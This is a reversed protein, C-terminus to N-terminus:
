RLQIGVICTDDDTDANSHTLLHDLRQELTQPQEVATALLDNVSDDLARDKREILGDTYMLLTDGPQLHLEGEAYVAEGVAGLLIGSIMPLASAHQDRILVPPLHGARAWRLIQTKPDYIGCLATAVVKESLNHAVLNLWALLQAPGAETTALGRLANRLAVMGTAADIGHGAIDGVSLLIQKSPLEVADYWDGGVLHDSEAPRYRVAVRLGPADIVGQATPMIARQLRLALRNGEAAELETQALQDRTAALAVETWHQASVDQYAGRIVLLRNDADLVPEAIVRTHRLIGDAQRLRFVTSAPRRHHLLTRLLRGIADADDPHAYSALQQLPIPAAGQALGYLMYLQSSWTIEGTLTNEEFGGIRGLRQAHRLLGALRAAEDQMRLVLLVCDNHRSISMGVTMTVPVEDVLVTMASQDARLPEGTAHVQAVKAFIGNPAASLPFAELLLAGTVASRARGAPDVFASNTHQIRFDVLQGREDLQPRLVMASDLMSEALAVLETIEPRSRIDMGPLEVPRSELTHACLEALAEVQRQIPTPQPPLPHPWCIELVGLIRGGATAPVAVRGGGPTERYGISVPDGGTITDFWITHRDTLARRATTAVGPPVYRWRQAEAATFGAFGALTLSSDSGAAWIAVGMAGLPALAHTLLSEAVAQADSAALIGSEATRLRLVVPEPEIAPFELTAEAIRDRAANNVIDAAFELESRGSRTALERLQRAAQAPGCHLREVLVGKALELLARTDASAEATRLERQARDLTAALRDVQDDPAHAVDDTSASM